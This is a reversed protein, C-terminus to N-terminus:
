AAEVEQPLEGQTIEVFDAAEITDQEDMWALVQDLKETPLSRFYQELVVKVNVNSEKERLKQWDPDYVMLYKELLRDSSTMARRFGEERLRELRNTAFELSGIAEGYSQAFSEDYFPSQPSTLARFHRGKYGLSRAAESRDLGWHIKQLFEVKEAETIDAVTREREEVEQSM